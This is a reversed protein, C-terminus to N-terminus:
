HAPEHLHDKVEMLLANLIVLADGGWKQGLTPQPGLEIPNVAFDPSSPITTDLLTYESDPDGGGETMAKLVIRQHPSSTYRTALVLPKREVGRDRLHSMVDGTFLDLGLTSMFDPITPVIILDSTALVSETMASIGPPCDCIIMDYQERLKNLDRRLRNGVRSEIARMAYGKETLVYILERETRRLGPSSAVLSIDLQRGAHSVDSARHTIFESLPVLAEGFFNENLYETVTKEESIAQFLREDGEAGFVLMSANAQMDLDILLVKRGEAAFGEALSVCTTTKGVGGKSNAVTIIQGTM